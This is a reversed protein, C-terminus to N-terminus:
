GLVGTFEKGPDTKANTRFLEHPQKYRNLCTDLISLYGINVSGLESTVLAYKSEAKVFKDLYLIM